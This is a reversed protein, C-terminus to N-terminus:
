KGPRKGPVPPGKKPGAKKLPLNLIQEGRQVKFISEKSASDQVAQDALKAFEIASHVDRGAISLIIDGVQLGVPALPGAADLEILVAGGNAPDFRYGLLPFFSVAQAKGQTASESQGYYAVLRDFSEPKLQLLTSAQYVVERGAKSGRAKKEWFQLPAPQMLDPAGTRLALSVRKHIEGLKDRAQALAQEASKLSPSREKSEAEIERQQEKLLTAQAKNVDNLAAGMASTYLTPVVKAWEPHKTTVVDALKQALEAQAAIDAREVADTRDPLPPSHGIFALEEKSTYKGDHWAPTKPQSSELVQWDGRKGSQPVSLIRYVIAGSLSLLVVLIGPLLGPIGQLKGLFTTPPPASTPVVGTAQPPRMSASLEGRMSGSLAGTAAPNMTQRLGGMVGSTAGTMGPAGSMPGGPPGGPAGTWGPNSPMAGSPTVPATAPFGTQRAAAAGASPPPAATLRSITARLDPSVQPAPLTQLRSFWSESVVCTVPGGCIGCKVRPVRGARLEEGHQVFDVLRQTTARCRACNYPILLSLVQGKPTLDEPRGLRELFPAPVALMHVRDVQEDTGTKAALMQMLKRFQATGVPDVSLIGGLDFIVEGELGDALKQARLDSDLDGSFKLYTARGEIRKEIKLKRQGGQGYSLHVRLFNMVSPPIQANPQQAVYTFYTAPDEDFDEANGCTPCLSPPAQGAKWLPTEEDTRFLLRREQDCTDCRYPAYFSVIFGSGGFNAVMNFQDVVKPSCEVYYIGGLRPAMAGIFDVWQRIGFSSIREIGGVDLILYRASIKAALGPADFQEDIVGSMRLCTVDGETLWDILLKPPPAVAGLVGSREDYTM